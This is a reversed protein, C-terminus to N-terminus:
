HEKNYAVPYLRMDSIIVGIKNILMKVFQEHTCIEKKTTVTCKGFLNVKVNFCHEAFILSFVAADELLLVAQDSMENDGRM